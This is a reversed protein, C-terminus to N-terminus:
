FSVLTDLIEVGADTPHALNTLVHETRAGTHAAMVCERCGDCVGVGDRWERGGEGSPSTELSQKWLM